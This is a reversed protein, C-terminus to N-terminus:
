LGEYVREMKDRELGWNYREAVAARGNAGLRRLSEPADILRRIADAIQAADTPDEVLVGVDEKRVVSAMDPLDSAVVPVGVMMFEFLKNPVAHVYSLCSGVIPVLGVDAAATYEMLVPFPVPDFLRVRGELGREEVRRRIDEVLHGSGVFALACEELGEMADVCELLGRSPVISGTYILLYKAKGLATRRFSADPTVDEFLDPVNLVVTPRPIQYREELIDARGVDTTIVADARRIFFGEYASGLVRWWRRHTWPWNRDLNLEDSDYVFRAGRRKAALWSVM